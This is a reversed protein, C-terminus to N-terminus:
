CPDEVQSAATEKMVSMKFKSMQLMDSSLKVTHKDPELKIKFHVASFNVNWNLSSLALHKFFLPLFTQKSYMMKPSTSDQDVM